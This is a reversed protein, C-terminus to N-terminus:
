KENNDEKLEKISKKDTAKPQSGPLEKPVPITEVDTPEGIYGRVDKVISDTKIEIPQIDKDISTDTVIPDIKQKIETVTEIPDVDPKMDPKTVIPDIDAKISSAININHVEVDVGKSDESISEVEGRLRIGEEHQLEIGKAIKQKLEVKDDIVEVDPQSVIRTFKIKTTIGIIDSVLPILRQFLKNAGEKWFIYKKESDYSYNMDTISFRKLTINNTNQALELTGKRDHDTLQLEKILKVKSADMNSLFSLLSIVMLLISLPLIYDGLTSTYPLKLGLLIGGAVFGFIKLILLINREKSYKYPGFLSFYIWYNLSEPNIYARSQMGLFNSREIQKQDEIERIQSFEIHASAYDERKQKILLKFYNKGQKISSVFSIDRFWVERPGITITELKTSKSKKSLDSFWGVVSYHVSITIPQGTDNTIFVRVIGRAKEPVQDIIPLLVYSIEKITEMEINERLEEDVDQYHTFKSVFKTAFIPNEVIENSM